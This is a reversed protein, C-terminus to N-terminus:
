IDRRSTKDLLREIADGVEREPQGAAVNGIDRDCRRQQLTRRGAGPQDAVFAVVGIMQARQEVAAPGDGNDGVFGVALADEREIWLAVLPAVDDLAGVTPELVEAGDGRAVVFEGTVEEGAQAENGRQEIPAISDM